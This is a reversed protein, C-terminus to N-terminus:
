QGFLEALKLSFQEVSNGRFDLKLTWTLLLRREIETRLNIKLNSVCNFM